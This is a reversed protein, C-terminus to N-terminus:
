TQTIGPWGSGAKLAPVPGILWTFALCARVVRVSVHVSVALRCVHIACVHERLIAGENCVCVWGSVAKHFGYPQTRQQWLDKM